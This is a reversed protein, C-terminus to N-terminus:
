SATIKRETLSFFLHIFLTARLNPSYISYSNRAEIYELIKFMAGIFQTTSYFPMLKTLVQCLM